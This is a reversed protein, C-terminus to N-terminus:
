PDFGLAAACRALGHQVLGGNGLDGRCHARSCRVLRQDHDTGVRSRSERGCRLPECTSRRQPSTARISWSLTTPSARLPRRGLAPPHHLHDSQLAGSLRDLLKLSAYTSDAVAVIQREPYWRRVLMLLQWAWETLSKHRQGTETAYRESPARASLFPLAWVRSAWRVETLLVVCVWRLASTKVFHSHSSRVPDRYIGKAAIKKGRRRELTEDIGVVLPGEPVFTKVLLGLLVRSAERSSWAARSLVRHYRCFRREEQLGM